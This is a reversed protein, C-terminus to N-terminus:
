VRGKFPSFIPFFHFIKSILGYVFSSASKEGQALEKVRVENLTLGQGWIPDPNDMRVSLRIYRASIPNECQVVHNFVPRQM